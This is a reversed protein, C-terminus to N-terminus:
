CTMKLLPTEIKVPNDEVVHEQTDASISTTTLNSGLEQTVPATAQQKDAGWPETTVSYSQPRIIPVEICTKHLKLAKAFITYWTRM